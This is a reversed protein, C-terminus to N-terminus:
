LAEVDVSYRHDGGGNIAYLLTRLSRMTRGKKGLVKGLDSSAVHLIFQTADAGPVVSLKVQEPRDVISYITARFLSRISEPVMAWEDGDKLTGPPDARAASLGALKTDTVDLKLGTVRCPHGDEDRVCRGTSRVWGYSDDPRRVRYDASYNRGTLICDMIADTLVDVDDPHLMQGFLQHPVGAAAAKPDIGYLKAAHEDAYVLGTQIHWDWVGLYNGATLAMNLREHAEALERMALMQDTCEELTRYVGAVRGQHYVPSLNFKLFVEGSRESNSTLCTLDEGCFSDGHALVAAFRQEVDKWHDGWLERASQGLALSHRRGNMQASADNGIFILDPGWYVAAASSSNVVLNVMCVLTSPWQEVPGLSSHRWPYARVYKAADSTGAIVDM